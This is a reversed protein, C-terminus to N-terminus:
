ITKIPIPSGNSFQSATSEAIRQKLLSKPIAAARPRSLDRVAVRILEIEEVLPHRGKATQLIKVVGTGM